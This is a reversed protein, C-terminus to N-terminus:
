PLVGGETHMPDRRRARCAQGAHHDAAQAIRNRWSQLVPAPRRNAESGRRVSGREPDRVDLSSGFGDASEESGSAANRRKIDIPM